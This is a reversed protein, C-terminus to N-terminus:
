VAEVSKVAEAISLASQRVPAAAAEVDNAVTGFATALDGSRAAVQEIARAHDGIATQASSLRDASVSIASGADKMSAVLPTGAGNFREVFESFSKEMAEQGIRAANNAANSSAEGLQSAATALGVKMDDLTTGLSTLLEDM